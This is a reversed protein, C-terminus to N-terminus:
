MDSHCSGHNEESLIAQKTRPAPKFSPGFVDAVKGSGLPSQRVTRVLTLNHEITVDSLVHCLLVM